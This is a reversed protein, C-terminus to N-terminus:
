VLQCTPDMNSSYRYYRIPNDGSPSSKIVRHNCHALVGSGVYSSAGLSAGAGGADVVMMSEQFHFSMGGLPQPLAAHQGDSVMTLAAQEM